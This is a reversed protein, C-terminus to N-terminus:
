EAATFCPPAVQEGTKPDLEVSVGFNDYYTNWTGASRGMLIHVFVGNTALAQVKADLTSASGGVKATYETNIYNVINSYSAEGIKYEVGDVTIYAIMIYEQTDFEYRLHYQKNEVFVIGTNAGTMTPGFAVDFTTTSTGDGLKGAGFMTFFQKQNTGETTQM